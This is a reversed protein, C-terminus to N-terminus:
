CRSILWSEAEYSNHFIRINQEKQFRLFSTTLLTSVLLNPSFIALSWNKQEPLGFIGMLAAEHTIHQFGTADMIIPCSKSKRLSLIGKRIESIMRSDLVAKGQFSLELYGFSSHTLIWNKGCEM